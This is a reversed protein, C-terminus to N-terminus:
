AVCGHTFACVCEFFFFDEEEDGVLLATVRLLSGGSSRRLFKKNVLVSRACSDTGFTCFFWTRLTHMNRSPKFKKKAHWWQRNPQGFSKGLLFRTHLTCANCSLAEVM